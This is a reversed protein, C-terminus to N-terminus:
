LKKVIPNESRKAFSALWFKSNFAGNDFDPKREMEVVTTIILDNGLYPRASPSQENKQSFHFVVKQRARVLSVTM